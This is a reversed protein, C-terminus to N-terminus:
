HSSPSQLEVAEAIKIEYRLPLLMYIRFSSRIDYYGVFNLMHSVYREM